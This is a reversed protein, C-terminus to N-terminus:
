SRYLNERLIKGTCANIIIVGKTGEVCWIPLYVLGEGGIQVDEKKPKIRKKEVVRASGTERVREKEMTGLEMAKNQAIQFAEKEDIKPELKRDFYE